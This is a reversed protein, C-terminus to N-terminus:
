ARSAVVTVIAGRGLRDVLAFYPLTIYRWAGLSVFRELGRRLATDPLRARFLLRLSAAFTTHRGYFCYM